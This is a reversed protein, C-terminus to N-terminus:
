NVILLLMSIDMVSPVRASMLPILWTRLPTSSREVAALPNGFSSIEPPTPVTASARVKEPAEEGPLIVMCTSPRSLSEPVIARASPTAALPRDEWPRVSLARASMCAPIARTASATSM